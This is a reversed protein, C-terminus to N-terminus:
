RARGAMDPHTAARHAALDRYYISCTRCLHVDRRHVDRDPHTTLCEPCLHRQFTHENLNRHETWCLRCLSVWADRHGAEHALRVGAARYAAEPTTRPQHGPDAHRIRGALWNWEGDSWAPRGRLWIGCDKEPPLCATRSRCVILPGLAPEEVVVLARPMRCWPCASDLTQGDRLLRLVLATDQALQHVDSALQDVLLLDVADRELHHDLHALHAAAGWAHAPPLLLSCGADAAIPPAHRDAAAAIDVMVDLVDPPVADAHEGPATDARELREIRAERDLQERREPSIQPPRWPRPTGPLLLEDLDEWHELLFRVDDLVKDFFSPPRPPPASAYDCGATGCGGPM